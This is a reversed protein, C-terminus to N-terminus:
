ADGSRARRTRRPRASPPVTAGMVIDWGLPSKSLERATHREKVQKSASPGQTNQPFQPFSARAKSGQLIATIRHRGTHEGLPKAFQLFRANNLLILLCIVRQSLFTGDKQVGKSREVVPSQAPRFAFAHRLILLSPM